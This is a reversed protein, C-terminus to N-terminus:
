KRFYPNLDGAWPGKAFEQTDVDQSVPNVMGQTATYQTLPQVKGLSAIDVEAGPKESERQGEPVSFTKMVSQEGIDSERDESSRLRLQQQRQQDLWDPSPQLEIQNTKAWNELFRDEGVDFVNSTYYNGFQAGNYYLEGNPGYQINYKRVPQRVPLQGYIQELM